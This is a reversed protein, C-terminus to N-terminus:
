SLDADLRLAQRVEMLIRGAWNEGLGDKGVGWFDDHPSDEVIEADACALLRAALDPHQAYKAADAKRMLDRKVQFWDARPMAKHAIFWSNRARKGVADPGTSLQKARNPTECERIARRYRPDFSKQTQYYHEVTPWVEGDLEIPSPHFHSLFGFEPRDRAFFLIRGDTPIAPLLMPLTPAGIAM